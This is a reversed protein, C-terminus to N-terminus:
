TLYTKNIYLPILSKNVSRLGYTQEYFARKYVIIYEPTKKLHIQDKDYIIYLSINTDKLLIYKLECKGYTSNKISIASTIYGKFFCFADQKYLINATFNGSM